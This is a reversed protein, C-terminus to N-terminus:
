QAELSLTQVEQGYNQVVMSITMEYSAGETLNNVSLSGSAVQGVPIPNSASVMAGKYYFTLSTTQPLDSSNAVSIAAAPYLATDKAWITLNWHGSSTPILSGSITVLYPDGANCPGLCGVIPPAIYVAYGFFSPVLIGVVLFVAAILNSRPVRVNKRGLLLSVIGLIALSFIPGSWLLSGLGFYFNSPNLEYLAAGIFLSGALLVAGAAVLLRM